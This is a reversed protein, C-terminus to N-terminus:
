KRFAALTLKAQREGLKVMGATDYHIDDPGTSIDDCDVWQYGEIELEQQAQRVLRWFPKKRDSKEPIRGSLFVMQPNDFTARSRLVLRQLNAAYAKSMAESKSDAGGQVWLMGVVKLPRVQRAAAVKQALEAFLSDPDDPNWQHQLNTGGRSHKIIGIPQKLEKAMAAAFAIEPGFGAKETRGPAIPVWSKASAQYFLANPNEGQLRAPLEEARCRKGVMNSQGALVFTLLPESAEEATVASVMTLLMAATLIRIM